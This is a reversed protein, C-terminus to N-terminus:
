NLINNVIECAWMLRFLLMFSNLCHSTLFHSVDAQDALESWVGLMVLPNTFRELLVGILEQSQLNVFSLM